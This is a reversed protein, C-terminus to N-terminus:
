DRLAACRRALGRITDWDHAALAASPAMWSGCVTVVSPLRLYGAATDADIGGSPYWRAAALPSSLSALFGPGGLASAPFVKLDHHGAEMAAMAESATAIGPLLPLGHLRAAASVTASLGPSVGFRAGADCARRVHEGDLLTGAGVVMGPVRTRIAEIAELAVPTRLTIELTGIGGDLLAEALPVAVTADHLVIVPLVPSASLLADLGTM